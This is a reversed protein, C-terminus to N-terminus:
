QQSKEYYIVYKGGLGANEKTGEKYVTKYCRFACTSIIIVIIIVILVCSGLIAAFDIRGAVFFKVPVYMYVSLLLYNGKKSLKIADYHDCITYNLFVYCLHVGQSAGSVYLRCFTLSQELNQVNVIHYKNSEFIPNGDKLWMCTVTETLEAHCDYRERGGTVNNSGVTLIPQM